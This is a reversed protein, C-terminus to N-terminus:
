RGRQRRIRLRQERFIFRFITDSAHQDLDVFRCGLQWRRRPGAPREQCRTVEVVTDFPPETAPLVFALRLREGPDLPATSTLRVGTASLNVILADIPEEGEPTIRAVRQPRIEVDLRVAERRQRPQWPTSRALVLRAPPGPLVREVVATAVLPAALPRDAVLTVTTGALRALPAADDVAVILGDREAAREDVEGTLRSIGAETPVEITVTRFFRPLPSGHRDTSKTRETINAM